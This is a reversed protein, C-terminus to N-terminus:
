RVGEKANLWDCYSQCEERTDFFTERPNLGAYEIGTKYITRCFNLIGDFVDHDSDEFQSRKYWINLRKGGNDIGYESVLYEQPKYIMKGVSCNCREKAKKGLPTLYEIERNDNCKNCKPPLVLERDVRFRIIRLDALLSDLRERRVKQELQDCEYELQRSKAAYENQIAVWDRKVIQLEDNEKKLRMMESMFEVKISVALSEKLEELKEEFEGPTNYFDEDYYSM